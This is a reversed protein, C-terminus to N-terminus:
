HPFVVASAPASVPPGEPRAQNVPSLNEGRSVVFHQLSVIGGSVGLHAGDDSGCLAHTRRMELSALDVGGGLGGHYAKGGDVPSLDITDVEPGGNSVSLPQPEILEHDGVPSQLSQSPAADLERRSDHLFFTPLEQFEPSIEGTPPGISSHGSPSARRTTDRHM